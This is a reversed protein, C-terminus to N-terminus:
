SGPIIPILALVAAWSVIAAFAKGVGALRYLPYQFTLAEVFSSFSCALLFAAFYFFLRRYPLDRSRTFYLLILPISLFALWLFLDSAVHLWILAPRGVM